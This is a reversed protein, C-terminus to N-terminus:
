RDGYSRDTYPSGWVFGVLGSREFPDLNPLRVKGARRRRAVDHRDVAHVIHHRCRAIWIRHASGDYQDQIAALPHGTSLGSLRISAHTSFSRSIGSSTVARPSEALM